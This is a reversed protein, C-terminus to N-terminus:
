RFPALCAGSDCVGGITAGPGRLLVTLQKSTMETFNYVTVGPIDGFNVVDAHRFSFDIM